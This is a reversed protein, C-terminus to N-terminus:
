LSLWGTVCGTAAVGIAPVHGTSSGTPSSTSGPPWQKGCPTTPLSPRRWDSPRSGYVVRDSEFNFWAAVAERVTNDAPVTVILDRVQERAAREQDVDINPQTLCTWWWAAAAAFREETSSM